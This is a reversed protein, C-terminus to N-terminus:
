YFNLIDKQFDEYSINKLIVRSIFNLSDIYLQDFAIQDMSKFSISLAQLQKNGEMDFAVECNGICIQVTKRLQTLSNINSSEPLHYFACNMLAFYKGHKVIDRKKWTLIEIHDNDCLKFLKKHEDHGIAELQEIFEKAKKIRALLKM